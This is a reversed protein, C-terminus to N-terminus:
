DTLDYDFWIRHTGDDDIAMGGGPGEPRSSRPVSLRALRVYGDGSRPHTPRYESVDAWDVLSFEGRGAGAATLNRAHIAVLQLGHLRGELLLVPLLGSGGPDGQM